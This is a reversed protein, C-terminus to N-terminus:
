KVLSVDLWEMVRPFLELPLPHGGRHNLIGLAPRETTLLYIPRAAQLYPWSRDGDAAGNGAEGAIVLFPRPAILAVLEHHNRAFGPERVEPGLYWPADWNTSTLGLGGESAVAAHVRDDLATLYLAEKAGLSHGVAGIRTPDVDPQALLVDLARQADYLMKHMGKTRPHRQRFRNVADQYNAAEQWLFCRPCIVVFGRQALKLGLHRSPEGTVGAIPEITETTTPHLAVIGARSRDATPKKPRLLYAQVKLDPESEYEILQRTVDPLDDTRLVRVATSEPRPPMPGLMDLWMQRLASRRASWTEKTLGEAGSWLPTLPTEPVNAPPTGVEALWPVRKEAAALSAGWLSLVALCATM